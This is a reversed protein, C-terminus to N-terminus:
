AERMRVWHSGAPLFVSDFCIDVIIEEYNNPKSVNPMERV